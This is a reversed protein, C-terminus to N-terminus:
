QTQVEIAITLDYAAYDVGGITVGSPRAATLGVKGNLVSAVMQLLNRMADLNAPGNSIVRIPFTMKAINWNHAEIDPADIFLCPPAINRPDTVVRLSTATGLKTALNDLGTNFLDTYAM